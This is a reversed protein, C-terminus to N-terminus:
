KFIEPDHALRQKSKKDPAEAFMRDPIIDLSAKLFTMDQCTGRLLLLNPELRPGMGSERRFPCFRSQQCCAMDACEPPRPLSSCCYISSEAKECGTCSLNFHIDSSHVGCIRFFPGASKFEASM